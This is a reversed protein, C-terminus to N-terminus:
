AKEAFFLRMLFTEFTYFDYAQKGDQTLGFWYVDKSKDKQDPM